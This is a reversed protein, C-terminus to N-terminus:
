IEDEDDGFIGASLFEDSRDRNLYSSSADETPVRPDPVPAPPAEADDVADEPFDEEREDEMYAQYPDPTYDPVSGQEEADEFISQFPDEPEPPEIPPPDAAAAPAETSSDDAPLDEDPPAGAATDDEPLSEGFRFQPDIIESLAVADEDDVPEPAEAFAALKQRADAMEDTKRRQAVEQEAIQKARRAENLSRLDIRPPPKIEWDDEDRQRRVVLENEHIVEGRRVEIYGNWDEATLVEMEDEDWYFRCTAKSGKEPPIGGICFATFDMATKLALTTDDLDLRDQTTDPRDAELLPRELTIQPEPGADFALVVHMGSGDLFHYQCRREKGKVLFVTGALTFEQQYYHVRDGPVLDLPGRFEADSPAKAKKRFFGPSV